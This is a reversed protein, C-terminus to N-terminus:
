SRHKFIRSYQLQRIFAGLQPSVARPKRLVYSKMFGALFVIGSIGYPKRRVAFVLSRVAALFLGYGEEYCRKGYAAASRLGKNTSTSTPRHHIVQIPLTKTTWGLYMAMYQDMGDWNLTEQLGGIQDFCTRRYSKFAGRVHHPAVREVRPAGSSTLEVLTGGCIGVSPDIEFARLVQEFYDVPLTLDADLKCIVDHDRVTLASLGANFVRVVHGGVRGSSTGVMSVVRIWPHQAAYSKVIDLTRDNSSDDVIIWEEPRVTQRCVSDLVRAIHDQEDKAPTVIVYTM